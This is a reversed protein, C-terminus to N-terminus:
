YALLGLEQIFKNSYDSKNKIVIKVKQKNFNDDIKSFNLKNESVSKTKSVSSLVKKNESSSNKCAFFTLGLFIFFLYNM